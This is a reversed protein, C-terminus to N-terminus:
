ESAEPKLSAAFKAILDPRYGTWHHDTGVEVVPMHRYGWSLVREMAEADETLDISEYPIRLEDLKRKTAECQVCKPKSYVTVTM